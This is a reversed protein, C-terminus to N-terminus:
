CFIQFSDSSRAVYNPEGSQTQYLALKHKKSFNCGILLACNSGTMNADQCFFSFFSKIVCFFLFIHGNLTKAARSKLKNVNQHM